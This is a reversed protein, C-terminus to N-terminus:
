RTGDPQQKVAKALVINPLVGVVIMIVWIPWNPRPMPEPGLWAPWPTFAYALLLVVFALGSGLQVLLPTSFFPERQKRRRQQRRLVDVMNQETPDRRTPATTTGARAAQSRMKRMRARHGIFPRGWIWVTTVVFFGIGFIPGISMWEDHEPKELTDHAVGLGEASTADGVADVHPAQTVSNPFLLGWVMSVVMAIAAIWPILKFLTFHAAPSGLNPDTAETPTTATGLTDSRQDDSTTM